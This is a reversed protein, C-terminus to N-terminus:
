AMKNFFLQHKIHKMGFFCYKQMMIEDNSV